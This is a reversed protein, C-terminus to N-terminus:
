EGSFSGGTRPSGCFEAAVPCTGLHAGQEIQWERVQHKPRLGDVARM